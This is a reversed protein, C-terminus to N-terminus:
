HEQAGVTININLDGAPTTQPAISKLIVHPNKSVAGDKLGESTGYVGVQFGDTGIYSAPTQLHFDYNMDLGASPCNVFFSSPAINYWNTSGTNSGDPFSWNLNMVNNSFHNSNGSVFYQGGCPGFGVYFYNNQFLCNDVGSLPGGGCYGGFFINNTFLCNSAYRFGQSIFNKSVVLGTVYGAAIESRFWNETLIINNSASANSGSSSLYISNMNIRSITINNVVEDSPNTGFIINSSLYFGQLFSNDAGQKLVISGNLQTIGTAITSDADYGVGFVSLTKDINLTNINFGGGPIYITDGSQAASVADNVPSNGTYFTSTGNHILNVLKQGFSAVSFMAATVTLLLRSRM